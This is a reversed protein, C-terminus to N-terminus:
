SEWAPSRHRRRCCYEIMQRGGRAVRHQPGGWLSRRGTTLLIRGRWLRAVDHCTPQPPVPPFDGHSPKSPQPPQIAGPVSADSATGHPGSGRLEATSATGATGATGDGTGCTRGRRQLGLVVGAKWALCWRARFPACAWGASGPRRGGAWIDWLDWLDWLDWPRQNEPPLGSPWRAAGPRRVAFDM